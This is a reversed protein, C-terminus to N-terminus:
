EKEAKERDQKRSDIKKQLATDIQSLKKRYSSTYRATVLATIRKRDKEVFLEGRERVLADLERVTNWRIWDSEDGIGELLLEKLDALAHSRDRATEVAIYASILRKKVDYDEDLLLLRHRIRYWRGSGFRSLFVMLQTGEKLEGSSAFVLLGRARREKRDLHDFLINFPSLTAVEIGMGASRVKGVKVEAVVDADKLHQRGFLTLLGSTGSKGDQAVLASTGFAIISLIFLIGLVRRRFATRGM